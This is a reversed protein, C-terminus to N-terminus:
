LHIWHGVLAAERCHVLYVSISLDFKRGTKCYLLNNICIQNLSIEKINANIRFKRREIWLILCAQHCSKRNGRPHHRCRQRCLTRCIAQCYHSHMPAAQSHIYDIEECDWWFQELQIMGYWSPVARPQPQDIPPMWTGSAEHSRYAWRKAIKQHM